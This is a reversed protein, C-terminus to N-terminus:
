HSRQAYSQPLADAIHALTDSVAHFVPLMASVVVFAVLLAIVAYSLTKM